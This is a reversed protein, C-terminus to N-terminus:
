SFRPKRKELFAGIAEGGDAHHLCAVFSEREALLHDDLTSTVAKGILTKIRGVAHPSLAAFRAAQGLAADLAGGDDAVENVVGLAHLRPAELTGGLMMAEAALQRPLARTTFWSGGGDPSLGVKVYSMVFKAGRGAVILDCAMALSMGAGAAFGEVAAIVPKPCGTIAATLRHLADISDSQVQPPKSRNDLLRNLNGGACFMGDAGTLVVARITADEAAQAFGGLLAAYMEPGLANRFGPNSFTLVLAADRRAVLVEAAM